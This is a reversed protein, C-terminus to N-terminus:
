SFFQETIFRLQSVYEKLIQIVRKGHITGAIAEFGEKNAGTGSHSFEVWDENKSKDGGFKQGAREMAAEIVKNTDETEINSRIISKLEVDKITLKSDKQSISKEWGNMVQDTWQIAGGENGNVPPRELGESDYDRYVDYKRNFSLEVVILGHDTNQLTQLITGEKLEKAVKNLDRTDGADRMNKIVEDVKEKQNNVRFEMFQEFGDMGLHRQAIEGMYASDPDNTTTYKKDIDETNPKADGPRERISLLDAIADAGPKRYNDEVKDDDWKKSSITCALARRRGSCPVDVPLRGPTNPTGPTNPPNPTPPTNPTDPPKPPRPLRLASAELFASVLVFTAFTFRM